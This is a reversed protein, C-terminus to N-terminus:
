NYSRKLAFQATCQEWPQDSFSGSQFRSLRPIFRDNFFVWRAQAIADFEPQEDAIPIVHIGFNATRGPCFSSFRRNWITKKAAEFDWTEVDKVLELRALDGDCNVVYLCAQQGGGVRYRLYEEVGAVLKEKTLSKFNSYRVLGDLPGAFVFLIGLIGAAWIPWGFLRKVFERGNATVYGGVRWYM